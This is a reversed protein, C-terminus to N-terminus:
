GCGRGRQNGAAKTEVFERWHRWGQSCPFGWSRIIPGTFFLTTVPGSVLEVRHGLTAPRWDTLEGEHRTVSSGDSLHELYEGSLIWSRNDWPHDHLAEDEDSRLFRHLYVNAVPNRPVVFWRQLQHDDDPGVHFDPVPVAAIHAAAWAQVERLEALANTADNRVDFPM